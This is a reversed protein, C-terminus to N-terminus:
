YENYLGDEHQILDLNPIAKMFSEPFMIGLEKLITRVISDVTHSDYPNIPLHHKAQQVLIEHQQLFELKDLNKKMSSVVKYYDKAQTVYNSIRSRDWKQWFLKEVMLAGEVFELSSDEILALSPRLRLVKDPVRRGAKVLEILAEHDFLHLFGLDDGENIIRVAINRVVDWDRARQTKKTEALIHLDSTASNSNLQSFIKKPAVRPLISFIDLRASIDDAVIELHSTWGNIAWNQHLPSGLGYRYKIKRDLRYLEDLLRLLHDLKCHEVAIDLDKTFESLNYQISAQGGIVRFNFNNENLRSRLAAYIEMLKKYDM